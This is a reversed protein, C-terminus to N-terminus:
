WFDIEIDGPRINDPKVRINNIITQNEQQFDGTSYFTPEVSTNRKFMDTDSVGDANYDYGIFQKLKEGPLVVSKVIQQAAKEDNDKNTSISTAGPVFIGTGEFLCQFDNLAMARLSGSHSESQDTEGKGPFYTMLTESIILREAINKIFAHNNILPMEYIMSLYLDMFGQTSDILSLIIESGITSTTIGTIPSIGGSPTPVSVVKLRPALRITLSDLTTYTM